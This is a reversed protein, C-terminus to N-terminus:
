AKFALIKFKKKEKGGVLDNFWVQDELVFVLCVFCGCVHMCQFPPNFPVLSIM